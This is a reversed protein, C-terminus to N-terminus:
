LTSLDVTGFPTLSYFPENDMATKNATEEPVPASRDEIAHLKIVRGGVPVGLRAM